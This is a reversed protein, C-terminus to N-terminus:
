LQTEASQETHCNSFAVAGRHKFPVRMKHSLHRTPAAGPVGYDVETDIILVGDRKDYGAPFPFRFTGGFGPRVVFSRGKQKMETAGDLVASISMDGCQLPRMSSTNVIVHWELAYSGPNAPDVEVAATVNLTHAIGEAAENQPRPPQPQKSASQQTIRQVLWPWVLLALLNGIGVVILGSAWLPASSIVLVGFEILSNGDKWADILARGGKLVTFVGLILTVLGLVLTFALRNPSM